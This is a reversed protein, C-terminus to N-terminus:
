AGPWAGPPGRGPARRPTKHHLGEGAIRGALRALADALHEIARWDQQARTVEDVIREALDLADVLVQEDKAKADRRVV